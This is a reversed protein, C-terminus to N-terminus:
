QVDKRKTRKDSRRKQFVSRIFELNGRFYRKGLRAPEQLFRFFWELGAKQMWKPARAIVGSVVDFSGGVGMLVCDLNEEKLMYDVLYEKLPSSIGIFVLDAGSKKILETVDHWEEEKFYGNRYGAIHLEPFCKKINDYSKEIIHQKAGLLFVSYQKEQSLKLLEYMLDIGAVREKLPTGLVKSAWVVSMGDANVIEGENVIRKLRSNKQLENIKDANVGVLHLPKKNRIFEDVYEITEKMSLNDVYTDMILIREM